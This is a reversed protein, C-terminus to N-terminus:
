DDDFKLKLVRERQAEMDEATLCRRGFRDQPPCVLRGNEIKHGPLQGRDIMNQLAKEDRPSLRPDVM